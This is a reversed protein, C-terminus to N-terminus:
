IAIPINYKTEDPHYDLLKFDDITFSDFDKVDPNIWLTPQPKDSDKTIVEKVMEIHKDYIHLNQVFHVMEGAEYGTVQAVMRLLVYYQFSNIGGPGAAALFDGSRQILTMNLKDGVVTWMTMFACPILTMESLDDVDYLTIILRRNLPNEKLQEILRHVQNIYKGTEPSKFTKATQYGYATGLSGEENAWSDWYNVNYKEKLNVVSNCRDKYIWLLEKIATKWAQKRLNTIPVEGSKYTIVQQALYTTYASKDDNWVARVNNIKADKENNGFEIIEEAKEIFIKDVRSM